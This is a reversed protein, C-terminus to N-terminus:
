GSGSINCNMEADWCESELRDVEKAIDIFESVLRVILIVTYTVGSALIVFRKIYWKCCDRIKSKM